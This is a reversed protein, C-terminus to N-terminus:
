LFAGLTFFLLSVDNTISADAETAGHSSTPGSSCSKTRIVPALLYTITSIAREWGEVQAQEAHARVEGDRGDAM